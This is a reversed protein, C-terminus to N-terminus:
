EVMLFAYRNMKESYESLVNIPYGCKKVTTFIDVAFAEPCPRAAKQNKCEVRFKSCDDCLCCEDMYFLFAKQFGALFVERELKILKRNVEKGWSFREEVKDFVKEFHIIVADQYESFFERCEAVSPVNPPCAGKKGYTGCGFTCKMRVWQSVVIDTAKIWKFDDYDHKKFLGELNKVKDM